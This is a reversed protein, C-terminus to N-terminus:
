EHHHQLNEESLKLAKTQEELEQNIQHLEEKQMSLERALEQTRSLLQRVRDRSKATSIAVAITDMAMDIFRQKLEDFAQFSGLEFVGLLQGEFLVPCIIYHHPPIIETGIHIGPLSHGEPFFVMKKRDRAVQGILGSGVPIRKYDPNVDHYAFSGSLMLHQEEDKLYLLGIQGNLYNALFSIIRESLEDIGPEGSIENVLNNIGTKLWDQNQIEISAERLKRTMEYLAIGLTDKDSRPMVNASYDGEAIARAQKVVTKFSEVMQNMSVAMIDKDSRVVVQKSYDGLAVSQSVEAFSQLSQVLWNFTEKMEGVENQAVRIDRNILEGHAVQKAWESIKKIPTVFRKTVITSLIIVVITTLILSLKAFSSLERAVFHAEDQDIEEILAWNVGLEEVSSINRYLGVMYKGKSNLYIGVSETIPKGEGDLALHNAKVSQWTLTSHNEEKERLISSKEGIRSASRLM